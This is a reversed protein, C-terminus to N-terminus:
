KRALLQKLVLAQNHKTDRASFLLTVRGKRAHARLEALEAGQKRLEQLYRKRFEDWLEPDHNFWQRLETSPAIDKMWLDLAARKKSVGRPWIRDVLVRMGDSKAPADFIRKVQVQPM